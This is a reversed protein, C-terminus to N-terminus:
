LLSFADGVGGTLQRLQKAGQLLTPDAVDAKGIDLWRGILNDLSNGDCPLQPKGDRQEIIEIAISGRREGATQQGKKLAVNHIKLVGIGCQARM